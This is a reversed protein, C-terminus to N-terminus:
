ILIGTYLAISILIGVFISLSIGVVWFQKCLGKRREIFFQSFSVAFGSIISGLLVTPLKFDISLAKCIMPIGLLVTFTIILIFLSSRYGFMPIDYDTTGLSTKYKKTKKANKVEWTRLKAM